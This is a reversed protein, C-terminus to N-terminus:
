SKPTYRHRGDFLLLTQLSLLGLRSISQAYQLRLDVGDSYHHTYQGVRVSKTTPVALCQSQFKDNTGERSATPRQTKVVVKTSVSTLLIRILSPRIKDFGLLTPTFAFCETSGDVGEIETHGTKALYNIYFLGLDSDKAKPTSHITRFLLITVERNMENSVFLCMIIYNERRISRHGSSRISFLTGDQTEVSYIVHVNNSQLIHCYKWNVGHKYITIITGLSHYYSLLCCTNPM